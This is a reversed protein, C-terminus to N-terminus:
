SHHENERQKQTFRFRRNRSSTNKNVLNAAVEGVTTKRCSREGTPKEIREALAVLAGAQKRDKV